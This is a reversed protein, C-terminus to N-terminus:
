ARMTKHQLPLSFVQFLFYNAQKQKNIIDPSQYYVSNVITYANASM